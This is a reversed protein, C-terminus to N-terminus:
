WGPAPRSSRPTHHKPCLPATRRDHPKEQMGTNRWGAAADSMRIHAVHVGYTTVFNYACAVCRLGAIWGKYDRDIQRPDRQRVATKM